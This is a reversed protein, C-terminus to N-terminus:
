LEYSKIQKKIKTKTNHINLRIKKKELRNSEDGNNLQQIIKFILTRNFFM